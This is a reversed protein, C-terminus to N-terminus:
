VDFRDYFLVPFNEFVDPEATRSFWSFWHQHFKKNFNFFWQSSHFLKKGTIPYDAIVNNGHNNNASITNKSGAIALAVLM